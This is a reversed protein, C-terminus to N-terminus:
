IKYLAKLMRYTMQQQWTNGKTPLNVNTYRISLQFFTLKKVSLWFIRAGNSM